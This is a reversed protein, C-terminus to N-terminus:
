KKLYRAAAVAVGIGLLALMGPESVSGDPKQALVPQAIAFLAMASLLFKM